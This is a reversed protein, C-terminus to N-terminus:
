RFVGAVHQGLAAPQRHGDRQGPSHDPGARGPAVHEIRKAVMLQLKQFVPVRRALLMDIKPPHDLHADAREVFVLLLPQGLQRHKGLISLNGLSGHGREPLM